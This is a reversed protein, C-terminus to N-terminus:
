ATLLYQDWPAKITGLNISAVFEIALEARTKKNEQLPNPPAERQTNKQLNRLSLLDAREGASNIVSRALANQISSLESDNDSSVMTRVLNLNEEGAKLLDAASLSDGKLTSYFDDVLELMSESLPGKALERQVFAVFKKGRDAGLTYIKELKADVPNKTKKKAQKQNAGVDEQSQLAQAVVQHNQQVEPKDTFAVKSKAKALGVNNMQQVFNKAVQKKLDRDKKNLSVAQSLNKSTAQENSTPTKKQFSDLNQRRNAAGKRLDQANQSQRQVITENNEFVDKKLQPKSTNATPKAVTKASTKIAPKQGQMRERARQKPIQPAQFGRSNSDVPM